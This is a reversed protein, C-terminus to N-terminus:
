VQAPLRGKAAAIVMEDFSYKSADNSHIMEEQRHVNPLQAGLSREARV